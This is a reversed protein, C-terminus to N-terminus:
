QCIIEYKMEPDEALRKLQQYLNIDITKDTLLGHLFETGHMIRTLPNREPPFNCQRAYMVAVEIGFKDIDRKIIIREMQKQM